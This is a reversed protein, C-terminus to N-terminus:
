KGEAEKKRREVENSMVWGIYDALSGVGTPEKLPETAGWPRGGSSDKHYRWQRIVSEVPAQYQLALSAMRSAMHFGGGALGSRRERGLQCFMELIRGDDSSGLFLHASVYEKAPQGCSPCFHGAEKGGIRLKFIRSNHTQPLREREAEEPADPQKALVYELLADREQL